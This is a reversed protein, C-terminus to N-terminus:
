GAVLKTLMRPLHPDLTRPDAAAVEAPTWWRVAQFEGPDPALSQDRRGELM